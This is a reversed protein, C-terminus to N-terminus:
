LGSYYCTSTNSEIVTLFLFYLLQTIEITFCCTPNLMSHSPLHIKKSPNLHTLRALIKGLEIKKFTVPVSLLNFWVM